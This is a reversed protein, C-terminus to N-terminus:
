PSIQRGPLCSSTHYLLVAASIFQPGVASLIKAEQYPCALRTAALLM